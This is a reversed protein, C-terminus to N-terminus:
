ESIAQLLIVLFDERCRGGVVLWSEIENKLKSQLALTGRVLVVCLRELVLANGVLLRAMMRQSEGGEYHVMNIEKVRHRLCPVSFSSEDPVTFEDPPVFLNHSLADDENEMAGYGYEDEADEKEEEMYLSLVELNPTQELIRGVTVVTGCSKIPGQLGLRTLRTFSPFGLFFRSELSGHHLHLHLHKADFFKEMFMRFRDFEAENSNSSCLNLTSSPVGPSRHLSLFLELPVTGCYDLSMLELADIDVSKVNHCCRLAFRRLCKDLVSVGKLRPIAELTLDILRPCSSILRRISKEGDHCPGTISLTQLTEEPPCILYSWYDDCNDSRSDVEVRKRSDQDDYDYDECSRCIRGIRFRLDLHLEQNSHRLVYSLWQNVHGFNWWHCNDFAFRLRRLAVHHGACRRRCILASCVDDLFEGSCSKMQQAEHYFTDWDASREGEQEEFSITHVNCFIHRWRRSLAAACGVEKSPLFSLIEGLLSDPLDSLRDRGGPPPPPPMLTM